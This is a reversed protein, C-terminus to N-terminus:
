FNFGATSIYNYKNETSTGTNAATISARVSKRLNDRGYM